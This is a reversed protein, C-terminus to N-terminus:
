KMAKILSGKIGVSDEFVCAAGRETHEIDVMKYGLSVLYNFGEEFSDVNTKRNNGNTLVVYRVM